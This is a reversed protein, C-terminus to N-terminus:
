KKEEPEKENKIEPKPGPKSGPTLVSAPEPKILEYGYVVNDAPWRFAKDKNGSNKAKAAAPMEKPGEAPGPGQPFRGEGFNTKPKVVLQYYLNGSHNGSNLEVLDFGVATQNMVSVGNFDTMNVPTCFVRIPNDNDVVIIDALIPDLDVHAKGSVLHVTGYDIYWYEPSEPCTLMIRGHNPTPIIESVAATGTIKRGNVNDAVYAYTGGSTNFYGGSRITGTGSYYGYVGYGDQANAIALGGVGISWGPNGVATRNNYGYIAYQNGGVSGSVNLQGALGFPNVTASANDVGFLGGYWVNSYGIVAAINASGTSSGVFSAYGANPTPAYVGAGNLNGWTGLSITGVFGLHGSTGISSYGKVGSTFSSADKYGLAGWYTMDQKAGFVGACETYDNYNYGAVGATYNNGWYSYGKVAADVQAVPWGTGGDTATGTGNRYGYITAKNAGYITSARYVYLLSNADTTNPMGVVSGNDIIQTCALNNAGSRKVVYNDTACGMTVGTAGSSALTIQGQANVTINANTYAGAAVGTNALGVSQAASGNYTFATIGTGQTLNAHTHANAATWSPAAAGNSTLITGAAGLGLEMVNGAANSYFVQWATASHDLTNTMTHLRIHDNTHTHNGWAVTNAATGFPIGTINGGLQGLVSNAGIAIDTPAAVGATNNGKVTNAPMNAMSITGTSTIPGGTLGTGTAINTVTGNGSGLRTWVPAAPTNSNYYFGTGAPLAANTNYVLLSTQPSLITAADNVGTLFVRPILMGSTTSSVDLMASADAASGTSNIAINQAEVTFTYFVLILSSLLLTKM